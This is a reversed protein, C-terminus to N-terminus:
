PKGSAERLVAASEAAFEYWLKGDAHVALTVIRGAARIVGQAAPVDVEVEDGRKLDLPTRLWARFMPQTSANAVDWTFGAPIKLTGQM